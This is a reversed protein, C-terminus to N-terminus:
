RRSPGSTTSFHGLGWCKYTQWLGQQCFRTFHSDFDQCERVLHSGAHSLTCENPWTKILNYVIKNWQQLFCFQLLLSQHICPMLYFTEGFSWRSYSLSYSNSNDNNIEMEYQSMALSIIYMNDVLSWTLRFSFPNLSTEFYFYNRFMSFFELVLDFSQCTKYVHKCNRAFVM